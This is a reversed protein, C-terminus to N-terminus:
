RYLPFLLLREMEPCQQTISNINAGNTIAEGIIKCIGTLLIVMVMVPLFPFSLAAITVRSCAPGSPLIGPVLLQPKM